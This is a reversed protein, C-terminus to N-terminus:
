DNKEKRKLYNYRVWFRWIVQTLELFSGLVALFSSDTRSGTGSGDPYGLTRQVTIIEGDEGFCQFIGALFTIVAKFDYLFIAWKSFRQSLCISIFNKLM